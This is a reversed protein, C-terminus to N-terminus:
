GHLNKWIERLEKRDHIYDHSDYHQDALTIGIYGPSFLSMEVWTLAPVLIAFDGGKFEFSFEGHQNEIRITCSGTIPIFLQRCLVHAHKGRVSNTALDYHYFLRSATFPIKDIKDLVGLNGKGCDVFTQLEIHDVQLEALSSRLDIGSKSTV